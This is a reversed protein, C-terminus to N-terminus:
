NVKIEVTIATMLLFTEKACVDFSDDRVLLAKAVIDM